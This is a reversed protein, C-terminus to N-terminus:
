ATFIIQTPMKGGQHVSHGGSKERTHTKRKEKKSFQYFFNQVVSYIYFLFKLFSHFTCIVSTPPTPNKRTDSRLSHTHTHTNKKKRRKRANFHPATIRSFSLPFSLFTSFSFFVGLLWVKKENRNHVRQYPFFPPCYYLCHSLDHAHTHSRNDRNQILSWNRTFCM